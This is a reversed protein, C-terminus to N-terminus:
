ENEIQEEKELCVTTKYIYVEDEGMENIVQLSASTESLYENKLLAALRVTQVLSPIHHKSCRLDSVIDTLDTVVGECSHVLTLWPLRVLRENRDPGYLVNEQSSYQLMPTIHTPLQTTVPLIDGNGLLLYDQPSPGLYVRMWEKQIIWQQKVWQCVHEFFVLLDLLM